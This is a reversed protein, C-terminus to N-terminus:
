KEISVRHQLELAWTNLWKSEKKTTKMMWSSDIFQQWDTFGIFVFM